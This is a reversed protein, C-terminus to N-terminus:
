DILEKVITVFENLDAFYNPYAKKLSKFSSVSVLVVDISPNSESEISNYAKIAENILSTKYFRLNLVRKDYNLILLCYGKQNPLCDNSIKIATKIALIMDIFNNNDNLVRLEKCLEDISESTNPVVHTKEYIAFCSSLICFFRLIDKNGSSAKLEQNTFIGITELATAWLHQLRTRIQIEILMNNYTEKTESFYKYILHYSRYGSNKPFNIYDKENKFKHRIRSQKISNAIRYVDEITPVIIRCGGIDQMSCLNIIPERKLKSVISPLRKLRQAIIIKDSAYNRKLNSYIIQLPYAHSARWNDILLMAKKYDSNVPSEKKVIKGAKIIQSKSYEPKEWNPKKWM